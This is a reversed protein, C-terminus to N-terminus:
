RREHARGREGRRGRRAPGQARAGCQGAAKLRAALEVRPVDARGVEARAILQAANTVPSTVPEAPEAGAARPARAPDLLLAALVSGAIMFGIRWGIM